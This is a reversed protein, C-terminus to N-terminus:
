SDLDALTDHVTVGGDVVVTSGTVFSAENSLLFRVVSAVEKPSGLRGLMAKSAMQRSRKEHAMSRGLMPTAIYGPCIANVRIGAQGFQAALSRTLGLMGAKSASYSPIAGQGLIANASSIGVVASGDLSELDEAIAATIFGYATLNVSLVRNWDELTLETLLASQVIGACSVFGGIAGVIARAQTLAEQYRGPDSVDVATGVAPVSYTAAIQEAVAAVGEANIDWLVVSRGEAAVAHACASGIGSSAGTVLVPTTPSDSRM